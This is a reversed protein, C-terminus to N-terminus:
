AADERRDGASTSSRITTRVARAPKASSPSSAVPAGARLSEIGDIVKEIEGQGKTVALVRGKEFGIEEMLEDVAGARKSVRLGGEVHKCESDLCSCILVADAGKEFAKLLYSVTMKGSCPLSLMKLGDSGFRATLRELEGATLCNACYFFHIGANGEIM